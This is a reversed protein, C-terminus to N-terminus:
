SNRRREDQELIERMKQRARVSRKQVAAATMSLARGIEKATQEYYYQRIIISTDPEGLSRIIEWLRANRLKEATEEAPDDSAPVHEELPATHKQRSSLRRYADIACNRTIAALYARQQETGSPLKEGSEFITVFVDSVCDEFDARNGLGRLRNYVIAHVLDAHTSILAWREQETM